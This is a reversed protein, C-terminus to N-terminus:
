GSPDSPGSSGAPPRRYRAGRGGGAADLREALGLRVAWELRRAVADSWFGEWDRRRSREWEPVRNRVRDFVEDVTVGAEGGDGDGNGAGTEAGPRGGPLADVVADALYVRERFARRLRDPDADADTRRFGSDTEEALGLARLFTLWERAVDRSPLDLRRLLRACCDSESGPVLPVARRADAVFALEEPPEPVPKFQM